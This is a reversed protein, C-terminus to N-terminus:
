PREEADLRSDALRLAAYLVEAGAVLDADETREGPAHSIGDVSPVFILVVPGIAALVQADHGAGSVVDITALGLERAADRVCHRLEPSTPVPEVTPGRVVRVECGTTRAIARCRAELAAFGRDLGAGDDDRLEVSVCASGPVVNRVGPEVTIRGATAVRVGGASPLEHVALVVRAAAVLADRRDDMPTTGAHRAAGIVEVEVNVRGTVGTVVGITAGARELVPGQEVHLEFFAAVSTAPWAAQGVAAPDGGVHRIRSALTCGADDVTDVPHPRGAIAHSGVMGPTGRAGEENSFAVVRLPHRLPRGSAVVRDVVEVAAVVGYAGDLPGAHVVTDLHSGTALVPLAPDSGPLEAVLNGAADIRTSAGGDRLWTAVLERAAVDPESYALRTVGGASDTGIGALEGLRALLRTGPGTV